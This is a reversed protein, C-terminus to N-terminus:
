SGILKVSTGLGQRTVILTKNNRQEGFVLCWHSIRFDV